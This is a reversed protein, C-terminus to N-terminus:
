ILHAIRDHILHASVGSNPCGGFHHLAIVEHTDRSLVPSGSSGFETDCFYGVDTDAVYGDMFERAVVCNGGDVASKLAIETPRGGPHQPIYIATGRKARETALDLHGFAAIVEFNHVTFLTYDHSRDTALVRSGKVKVPKTTLTGGCEACDYGFWVESRQAEWSKSFCHNNTLMRNQEGVRFATCLVTGDVLLRAVPATRKVVDPHTRAYCAAHKKDDGSCISEEPRYQASREAILGDVVEEPHGYAIKDVVAGLAAAGDDSARHLEVIATDGSISTAWEAIASGDYRYSEAGDPSSVTVADGDALLLREFHVKVYSAEPRHFVARSEDAGPALSHVTEVIEGIQVMGVRTDDVRLFTLDEAAAGRDLFSGEAFAAPVALAAAGIAVAGAAALLGARRKRRAGTAV